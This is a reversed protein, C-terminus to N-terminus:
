ARNLFRRERLASKLAQAQEPLSIVIVDGPKHLNRLIEQCEEANEATHVPVDGSKLDDVLQELSFPGGPWTQGPRPKHEYPRALIVLDARALTHPLERQYVWQRGGTARPQLVSVLRRGPFRQRVAEFLGRISAPHCAKDFVLACEGDEQIEQRNEIGGFVRLGEAARGPNVGLEEAAFIAMAANRVNMKGFMPLFFDRGAFCFRSGADALRVATIKQDATEGFGITVARCPAYDRLALADADDDPLVLCGEPPLTKIWDAFVTFMAERNAFLDPHDDLLNTVLAVHAVYHRFKPLPDDFCSAYEDGELVALASGTFRAPHPLDRPVGGVLYDPQKGAHELIWTLLASTTTKGVGGAV